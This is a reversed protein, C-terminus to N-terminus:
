EQRYFDEFELARYAAGNRFFRAYIESGDEFTDHLVEGVEVVESSWTVTNGLVNEYSHEAPSQEAAKDRAEALSSAKVLMFSEEYLPRNGPTNPSSESLVVAIYYHSTM